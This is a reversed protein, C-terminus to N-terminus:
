SPCFSSSLKDPVEAGHVTTQVDNIVEVLVNLRASVAVAKESHPPSRDPVSVKEDKAPDSQAELIKVSAVVIKSHPDLAPLDVITVHYSLSNEHGNEGELEILSTRGNVVVITKVDM